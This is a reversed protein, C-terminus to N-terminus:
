FDCTGNLFMAPPPDPADPNGSLVEGGQNAAPEPTGEVDLRTVGNRLDKLEQRARDLLAGDRWAM